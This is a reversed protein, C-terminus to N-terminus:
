APEVVTLEQQLWHVMEIEAPVEMTLSIRLFEAFGQPAVM